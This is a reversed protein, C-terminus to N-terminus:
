HIARVTQPVAVGVAQLVSHVCGKLQSRIAFSKGSFVTHAELLDNVDRVIDKWELADGKAELREELERRLAVALFSCFVHGRITEDCKHYIPRSDLISKMTRFIDEVMWLRKYTLAVQAAALDMNTRLVWKGDFRAEDRVKNKDVVFRGEGECALYRRYGRNGVLSKDGQKLQDKLGALIAQRDAADKKRQDENLCVIYRRQEQWVEKVKLPSPDKFSKGKPHVVEYTGRRGLVEERVEKQRRMRVGLIYKWATDPKELEAITKRSIMGRDAVICIQNVGFCRRLRNVIPILTTVDTTNGPWMECCIPRGTKDLVMAVVMQKLDPRHDKSHGRRGITEGGEGEFYISTTDFFVVDVEAFLDRRQDFWREEVLDKVCRPTFPTKGEQAEDGLASGLFAMARYLHHLELDGVGEIRYDQRWLEAQRDSGSVFLRHLVTLYIAREVDFEYRRDELLGRLIKEFGLERWLRGFVLDPGIREIRAAGSEGRDGADLVALRECFRVGSRILQDFQGSSKMADLRGLTLLVEQKVKGSDRFSTVIQAYEYKGTRKTRFYM